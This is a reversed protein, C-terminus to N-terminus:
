DGININFDLGGEKLAAKIAAAASKAPKKTTINVSQLVMLGRVYLNIQAPTLLYALEEYQRLNKNIQQCLSPLDAQDSHLSNYTSSLISQLNDALSCDIEAIAPNLQLLGDPITSNLKASAQVQQQGAQQGALQTASILAQVQQSTQVQAQPQSAPTKALASALSQSQGLSALKAQLVSAMSPAPPQAPPQSQAPPQPQAQGSPQGALKFKDLLSM